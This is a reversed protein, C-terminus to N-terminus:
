QTVGLIKKSYEDVLPGSVSPMAQKLYARAEDVRGTEYLVVAAYFMAPGESPTFPKVLAVQAAGTPYSRDLCAAELLALRLERNGPDNRIAEDLVKEADGARSALILRRSEDLAAQSRAPDSPAVPAPVASAAPASTQRSSASETGAPASRAKSASATRRQEAALDTRAKAVEPRAASTEPIRGAIREAEDFRRADVLCVFKEAYLDPHREFVDAPVASLDTLADAYLRREYRSRARLALAEANSPQLSLAKTAWKEADKADGRELAEAALDRPWAPNTPERRAEAELAKRRSEPPLKAIKQENTEILGALSPVSLITAQPVKAVLLAQFASRTEPQLNAKAYSPFRRELDLFREITALTDTSKNAASEALALRVLCESFLPPHDLTGFAAIRFQDIAEAYRKAAYANEGDRLRDQNFDDAVLSAVSPMMGLVVALLFPFTRRQARMSEAKERFPDEPGVIRVQEVPRSEDQQEDENERLREEDGNCNEPRRGPAAERQGAAGQEM